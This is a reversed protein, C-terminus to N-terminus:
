STTRCSRSPPPVEPSILALPGHKLERDPVGRRPRLLDGQVEPRGRARGPLRPGRGVFFLRRADACREAIGAIADEQDCCRRSRGPCSACGPSWGRATPSPCTACGAWTCPWCARLRRVHEDLAKTSAVAVEPGPTCTSAATASAPSRRASSTSWRRRRPRGQAQDGARRALTDATEGSQSVAVYLTDPEIVPNRYRFESAPEADAPIRALEEILQAGLQGVYYASAAAWCRVRRIGLATARTSTSRRRPARHAFREDLRGRLSASSPRRSSWSRRACSTSTAAARRPRGAVTSTSRGAEADADRRPRVHPLRRRDADRARRRRPPRGPAHLARPGRCRVGRADRARRHRADAPSGNRAVCSATRTAPTSCPWATRARSAPRARRPGRGRADGAGSRAILHALVETDTDSALEVGDAECRRAAGRRQRHHRQPGGGRARRRRAHPHANADTPAGHTAWRTHGIGVRGALRSRCAGRLDACGAPRAQRVGHARRRGLVAIGASDYGRYELAPWGRSCSPSAREPRGVYGVIGCM